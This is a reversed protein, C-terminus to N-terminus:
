KKKKTPKYGPKGSAIGEPSLGEDVERDATDRPGTGGTGIRKRTSTRPGFLHDGAADGHCRACLPLVGRTEIRGTRDMVFYEWDGGKEDFGKERKQMAFVPGGEGSQKVHEELVIAGEPVKTDPGFATYGASFTPSTKVVGSWYPPNHGRSPLQRDDIAVLSPISSAHEWIAASGSPAAGLKKDPAEPVADSRGPAVLDNSTACSPIAIALGVAVACAVVSEVSRRPATVM